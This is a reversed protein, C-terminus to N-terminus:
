DPTLRRSIDGLLHWVPEGAIFVLPALGVLMVLPREDFIAMLVLGVVAAATLTTRLWRLSSEGAVSAREAAPVELDAPYQLREM